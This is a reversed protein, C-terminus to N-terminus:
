IEKESVIARAILKEKFLQVFLPNALNNALSKQALSKRRSSSDFLAAIGRENTYMFSVLGTIITRISWASSWTEKHYNTFTTCIPKDVQFRGNQTLFKIKPPAFPYDEPLEIVGHYLGGEFDEQM